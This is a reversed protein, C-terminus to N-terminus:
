PNLQKFLENVFSYTIKNVKESEISLISLLYQTFYEKEDENNSIILELFREPINARNYKVKLEKSKIFHGQNIRAKIFRIFKSLYFLNYDSLCYDYEQNIRIVESDISEKKFPISGLLELYLNRIAFEDGDFHYQKSYYMSIGISSLTKKIDKVDNVITSKSVDMKQVLDDLTLDPHEMLDYLILAKRHSAKFYPKLFSDEIKAIADVEEWKLIMNQKNTYITGYPAINYNIERVDYFLTRRSIGYLDLIMSIEAAQNNMLIHFIEIQRQKM